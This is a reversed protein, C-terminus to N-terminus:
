THNSVRFLLLTFKAYLLFEKKNRCENFNFKIKRYRSIKQPILYCWAFFTYSILINVKSIKFYKFNQIFIVSNADGQTSFASIYIIEQWPKYTVIEEQQKKDVLCGSCPLWFIVNLCILLYSYVILNTVYWAFYVLLKPTGYCMSEEKSQLFEYLSYFNWRFDVGDTITAQHTYLAALM